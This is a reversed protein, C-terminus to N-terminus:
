GGFRWNGIAESVKLARGYLRLSAVQEGLRLTESGNAHRLNPNYRGWGFQRAGAGDCLVGNVVFLILKPGGDVIAVLHQRRGAQLAGPDTEWVNRTRGDDLILEITERETVRLALGQGSPNRTDLLVVGPALGEPNLWVDLTLGARQDRTGFDPRSGDRELFIPLAPMPVSRPLAKGPEPLALLLGEEVLTAREQQGWLLELLAPAVEHVRAIEKQTETLWYRGDQEVLDPYSMRIYPDDDYLVIEPLSWAITRGEPTDVEIGGCLWVPNRDDYWAGGHNHFWYLYKGNACRWLFNAARPHRMPRGDAYTQYRPVSWTHGGDRSLACCPHGDVTRYVCYFSGDSLVVYSQEEAIPGGGPPTRLGFEGDPLTEWTATAPDALHLLDASRLLVGESRTFFGHGFGGVKHLSVYAAGQHVFPKGVNWFFRIAGGYPNKRDIDMLRQPIEYRQASWSRGGDDSYRFCFHGQSDVRRCLGDPYAPRDAIVARLNDTNHNYFCYIRGKLPGDPAKLLVAYSAEPGDAPEIDVLPGWTRGQDASRSVVVHQGGAGELGRGTTLVCLWAGDDTIVVYPQDAYLESPIIAGHAIHRPDPITSM